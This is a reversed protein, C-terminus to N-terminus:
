GQEWNLRASTALLNTISPNIPTNPGAAVASTPASDGNTGIGVAYIRLKHYNWSYLALGGSTTPEGTISISVDWGVPESSSKNWSKISVVDGNVRTRQCVLQDSSLSVDASAPESDADGYFITVKLKDLGNYRQLGGGIGYSSSFDTGTFRALMRAEQQGTNASASDLYMELYIETDVSDPVSVGGIGEIKLLGGRTPKNSLIYPVNNVDEEHTITWGAAPKIYVIGDVPQGVDSLKPALYVQTM